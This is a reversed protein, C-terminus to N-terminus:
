IVEDEGVHAHWARIGLEQLRRVFFVGATDREGGLMAPLPVAM